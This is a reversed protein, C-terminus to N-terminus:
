EFDIINKHYIYHILQKSRFKQINHTKFISQLEELSKGLLEIM